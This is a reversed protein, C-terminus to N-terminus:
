RWPAACLAYILNGDPFTKGANECQYPDPRFVGAGADHAYRIQRAYTALDITYGLDGKVTFRCYHSGQPRPQLRMLLYPLKHIAFIAAAVLAACAM